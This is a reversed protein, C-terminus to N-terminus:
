APGRVVWLRNGLRRVVPRFSPPARALVGLHTLIKEIAPRQLIAAIIKLEGECNPGHEIPLVTGPDVARCRILLGRFPRQQIGASRSRSLLLSADAVTAARAM